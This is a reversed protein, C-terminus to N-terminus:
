APLAVPLRASLNTVAHAFFDRLFRSIHVARAFQILDRAIPIAHAVTQRHQASIRLSQV